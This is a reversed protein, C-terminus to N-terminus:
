TIEEAWSTLLGYQHHSPMGNRCLKTSYYRGTDLDIWSTCLVWEALAANKIHSMEALGGASLTQTSEEATPGVVDAYERLLNEMKDHFEHQRSSLDEM